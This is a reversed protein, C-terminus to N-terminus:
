PAKLLVNYPFYVLPINFKCLRLTYKASSSSDQMTFSITNALCTYINQVRGKVLEFDFEFKKENHNARSCKSMQRFNGTSHVLLHPRFSIVRSFTQKVIVNLKFLSLCRTHNALEVPFLQVM